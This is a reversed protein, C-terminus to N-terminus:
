KNGSHLLQVTAFTDLTLLSRFSQIARFAAKYFYSRQKLGASDKEEFSSGKFSLIIFIVGDLFLKRGM